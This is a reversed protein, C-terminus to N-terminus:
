SHDMTGEYFVELLGPNLHRKAGAKDGHQSM